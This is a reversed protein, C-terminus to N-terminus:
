ISEESRVVPKWIQHNTQLAPLATIRLIQDDIRIEQDNGTIGLQTQAVYPKSVMGQALLKRYLIMGDYDSKLRALNFQNILQAQLVGKNWGEEVAKKWIIQEEKNKPLFAVPPLKPINYHMWLYDRWNPPTTVFRAQYKIRYICGVIYLTHESTNLANKALTLVPPLVNDALLLGQFNFIHDLKKEEKAHARNIKKAEAALGTQAGITLGVDRLAEENIDTLKTLHGFKPVARISKLQSLSNVNGVIKYQMDFFHYCGTFSFQCLIYLVFAFGKTKYM